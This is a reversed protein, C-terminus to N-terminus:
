GRKSLLESIADGFGAWVAATLGAVIIPVAAKKALIRTTESGKRSARLHAMDKQVEIPRAADIGLTILTETVAQRVLELKDKSLPL